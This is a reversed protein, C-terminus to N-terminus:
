WEDEEASEEGIVAGEGQMDGKQSDEETEGDLLAVLAEAREDEGVM